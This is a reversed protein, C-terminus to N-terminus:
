WEKIRQSIRCEIPYAIDHWEFKDLVEDIFGFILLEEAMKRTLGRSMLYFLEHEQVRSMTAGHSCRVDDAAIELQPISDARAGKSLILNRNKQYADTKQANPYVIIKGNFVSRGNGSMAGKFLLDSMAHGAAHEQLTYHDFHQGEGAVYAGLMRATSGTGAMRSQITDRIIKGGLNVVGATLAADRGIIARQYGLATSTLPLQQLRIYKLTSGPALIFEYAPVHVSNEGTGKLIDLVRLHSDEEMVILIHPFFIKGPTTHWNINVLPEDLAVGKPVHIITASNLFAGHLSTFKDFVNPLADKMFNAKVFDPAKAIATKWDMVKVGRSTWSEPVHWFGCDGDCNIAVAAHGAMEEFGELAKVRQTEDCHPSAGNTMSIGDWKIRRPDTYRWAEDRTTPYPTALYAALSQLRKELVWSPEGFRKSLSEAAGSEAIKDITETSM